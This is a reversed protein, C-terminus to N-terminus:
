HPCRRVLVRCRAVRRALAGAHRGAGVVVVAVVVVAVAVVTVVVLVRVYM